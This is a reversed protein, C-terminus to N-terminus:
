GEETVENRSRGEREELRPRDVAVGGSCPVCVFFRGLMETDHEFALCGAVKGCETCRALSLGDVAQTM